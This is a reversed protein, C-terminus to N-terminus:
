KLLVMEKDQIFGGSKLRYVYIGSSVPINYRDTGDWIVQYKGPHQELDILTKIEQGLINYIKLVVKGTRPIEYEIITFPNFPNPFNQYVKFEQPVPINVLINKSYTVSGDYDVQKLRFFARSKNKFTIIKRYEQFEDTTGRGSVFELTAWNIKDISYQIEFGLNNTESATTWNLELQNQNNFKANFSILEVSVVYVADDITFFDEYVKTIITGLVRVKESTGGNGATTQYINQISSISDMRSLTEQAPHNSSSPGVSILVAEAQTQSLFYYSSSNKSGHQGAKLVSIDGIHAGVTDEIDEGLDGGTFFKFQNYEILLGISRENEDINAMSDISSWKGNVVVCTVTVGSGLDIEQEPQITYRKGAVSDAYENYYLKTSPVNDVGRDYVTDVTIGSNLIRSINTIHIADYHSAIVYDLNNIGLDSLISLIEDRGANTQGGDILMSKGASTVVVLGDGQGVNCTYVTLVQAFIPFPIFFIAFLIIKLHAIVNMLNTISKLLIEELNIYNYM